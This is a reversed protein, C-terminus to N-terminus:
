NRMQKYEDIQAATAALLPNDRVEASALVEALRPHNEVIMVILANRQLGQKKARTMPTGGFTEAYYRQDMLVIEELPPLKKIKVLAANATQAGRNYPCVLQCIDCGFLSYPLWRWYEVPITGRHEITYYSLCKRADLSYAQDLAGTPCFVQCRTCTGCGGQSSRQQPDVAAPTDLSLPMNSLIEGLLFFSGKTPHIYMTNKGIFGTHTKAALARELLPASDVVIRYAHAEHSLKQLSAVIQEAQKRFYRHYDKLRAYQAVAPNEDEKSRRFKDGQYYPLGLIIASRAGPLLERPDRRCHVNNALYAMEAHNGAELWSSFFSFGEEVGLPVVGLLELGAAAVIKELESRM